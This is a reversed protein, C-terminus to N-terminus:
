FQQIAVEGGNVTAFDKYVEIDVGDNISHVSGDIFAFNTLGAHYSGMPLYNFPIGLARSLCSNPPHELVKFCYPADGFGALYWPRVNGPPAQPPQGVNCDRHVFEGILFSKSQGDKIQGLKREAGLAVPFSGNVLGEDFYFAGNNPVRGFQSIVLKEGRNRVAGGVGSYTVMAGLQYEFGSPASSVTTPGNWNPCIFINVVADRVPDNFYQRGHKYYEFDIRDYTAAEETYQLLSSFLGRKYFNHRNTGTISDMTRAVGMPLAKHSSIYNQVGIGMQRMSNQCQARRAAERASQVAPLLLGVLIGIIAIVVL